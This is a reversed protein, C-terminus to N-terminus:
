PRILKYPQTWRSLKRLSVSDLQDDVADRDSSCCSHTVETYREVGSQRHLVVNAVDDATTEVL